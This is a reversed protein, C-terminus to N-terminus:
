LNQKRCLQMVCNRLAKQWWIILTGRRTELLLVQKESGESGTSAAVELDLNHSTTQHLHCLGERFHNLSRM